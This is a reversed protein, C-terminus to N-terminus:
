VSGPYKKALTLLNRFEMEWEGNKCNRLYATGRFHTNGQPGKYEEDHFYCAGIILGMRRSGDIGTAEAYDLVQKHGVVFSQGKKNLGAQASSIARGSFDNSLYHVFSIGAIKYPKLFPMVMNWHTYDPAVRELLGLYASPGSDLAKTRRNCHNGELYVFKCNWNPNELKGIEIIAWFEEFSLNGAEIDEIYCKDIFSHKGQDYSSLSPLDFHDGLHVVYDPLTKIIDWAVPVLPNKVGPKVQTDAIVYINKGTSM